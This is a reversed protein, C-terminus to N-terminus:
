NAVRLIGENRRHSTHRQVRDFSTRVGGLQREAREKTLAIEAVTGKAKCLKVFAVLSGRRVTNTSNPEFQKTPQRNDNVAAQKAATVQKKM